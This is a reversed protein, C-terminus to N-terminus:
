SERRTRLGEIARTLAGALAQGSIPKSIYDDMGAAICKERDGELVNATMATIWPRTALPYEACLRGTCTLGDMVPMQMDMFILDFPERAIAELAEVGHNAIQTTYGLRGLLLTAVQQNIEIDEVLLIRLAPNTAPAEPAGNAVGGAVVADVAPAAALEKAPLRQPKFIEHLAAHLVEKRAPKTITQAVDFGALALSSNGLATLALLPLQSAPLRRRLEAALTIGDMGPMQVDILVADFRRGTDILQLAQLGSAVTHAELGWGRAQSALIRRNTANDDVILLRRGALVSPDGLDARPPCPAAVYPIEFSFTTGQGLVSEVEIHGRMLGIMRQCIALGLGTGGFNRTISNDIQSFSKFLRDFKDAPIGMGTDRVSCRLLNNPKTSLTVLVEGHHTFKVANSLLNIVVQRLRIVDGLIAQPAGPEIEIMIELGKAVADHSSIAVASELCERLNVPINELNLLGAEINSFDLIDNILTILTTGCTRITGVYQVQEATLSTGQLLESMGVVANMPTRIEHSMNSLFDSKARTAAEAAVKAEALAVRQLHSETVDQLAGRVLVTTNGEQQAEGFARVRRHNGQATRFPLTVDFATGREIAAQVLGQITAAAEAPYFAIGNALTPQYDPNVEHIARVQESWTLTQTAVDLEWAGIKALRSTHNLATAQREIHLQNLYDATTDRHMGVMRLPQGETTRSVVRGCDMVWVWHGSRHKMRHHCQYIPTEGAFHRELAAQALQLDDPHCRASWEDVHPRLDSLNEGLMAAWRQDFHTEGTAINWDWLGLEGSAMALETREAQETLQVEALKRETIDLEISMFGIFLGDPAPLPMIDLDIWYPQGTKRLNLIECHFGMEKDLAARMADITARDCAPSQVLERPSKGISEALTYGSMRTFGENVWTIRRQANTIVVANTTRTAVMALRDAEQKAAALEATMATALEHAKHQTRGLNNLLGALLLTLVPGGLAAYGVGARSARTFKPSTSTGITWTMGGVTIPTFSHFQRAAYNPYAQRANSAKSHGDGDYIKQANDPTAGNFIELDLEDGVKHVIPDFIRSAVIPMNTWGLLAARREEPTTPHAGNKYVPYYILFGPLEEQAQVLTIPETLAAQGTLMAREATTRRIREQGIDYGQVAQNQALPEIFEIVFLEPANGSTKVKFDPAEDARTGALFAPLDAREIRKTFGLGLAGPFKSPFDVAYFFQAFEGREVSKGVTWLASTTQLCYEFKNIMSTVESQMLETFRQFRQRDTAAASREAYWALGASLALGLAIVLPTITRLLTPRFRSAAAPM